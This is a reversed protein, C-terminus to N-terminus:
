GIRGFARLKRLNDLTLVGAWEREAQMWADPWQDGWSWGPRWGGDEGQSEILFNLNLPIADAFANAFPSQPSDIVALPPLGYNRWQAPDREVTHAVIQKLKSLMVAKTDSRLGPSEWLRIYCLLDHMEMRDPQRHLYAIVSETVGQRMDDPFHQAYDNVYGAIEARPNIMRKELDGNYVWWPAHPANDINPPIIPWNVRQADYTDLLYRCAKVVMPHDAPTDLERFRQFAITTAIV